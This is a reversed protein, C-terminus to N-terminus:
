GDKEERVSLEVDGQEFCLEVTRIFEEWTCSGTLYVKDGLDILHKDEYTLKEWVSRSDIKDGLIALNFRVM